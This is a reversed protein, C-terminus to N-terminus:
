INLFENYDFKKKKKIHITENKYYLKDYNKNLFDNIFNFSKLLENPKKIGIILISGTYFVMISINRDEIKLKIKVSMHNELDYSSFVNDQLKNIEENLINLKINHDIKYNTNILQIDFDIVFAEIDLEKLLREVLNISNDIDSLGTIHINGNSFIKISLNNINFTVSNYFSKKQSKKFDSDIDIDLIDINIKKKNLKLLITMTSISIIKITKLVENLEQKFINKKSIFLENISEIEDM